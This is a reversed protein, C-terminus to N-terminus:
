SKEAGGDSEERRSTKGRDFVSSANELFPRKWLIGQNPHIVLRQSLEGLTERESLAGLVVKTKFDSTFKRGKSM